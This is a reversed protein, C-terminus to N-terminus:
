SVADQDRYLLPDSGPRKSCSNAAPKTGDLVAVSEAFFVVPPKGAALSASASLVSSSRIVFSLSSRSDFAHQNYEVRWQELVIRAELLSSFIERNLCEDRRKDHFSEIYAQEWPAGPQIYASRVSQSKLWDQVAQAIFEPGNDSRLYKPTGYRQFRQRWCRSRM